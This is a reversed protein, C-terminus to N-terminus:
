SLSELQDLIGLITADNKLSNPYLTGDNFDVANIFAKLENIYPVESHVYNDMVDKKEIQIMQWEKEHINCYRVYHGGDSWEIIGIEGVIRCERLLKPRAIVDVTFSFIATGYRLNAQYFDDIDAPISSLKGRVCSLCDPTGFIDNIWTLEFPIIERCGGTERNSVYYDDISEWPHWDPLYQGSHYHISLPAGILNKQLLNKITKPGQHYLMTCSPLILLQKKQSLQHLKLIHDKQTVSAEIFASTSLELAKYAYDMHCHPPTSIIWISPTSIKLVEELSKFCNVSYKETAEKRRDERFDVGLIHTNGLAQLNRIRRKGM